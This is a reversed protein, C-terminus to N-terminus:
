YRRANNLACFVSLFRKHSLVDHCRVIDKSNLNASAVAALSGELRENVPTPSITNIFSKRSAGLVLPLDLSRFSEMNAIIQLNHSLDKGFGVGPDLMINERIIGREVCFCVRENFFSTIEMLVDSYKPNNQMTEPEGQMHMLIVRVHPNSALVRVMDADYRLASIDNIIHAGAEIAAQAVIAKRTDISYLTNPFLSVLKELVPIIRSLEIDIAIPSAGPRTSEAGIDIIDAGHQIMMASHEIAREQNLYLSGDSFSDETLNLIGMIQPTSIMTNNM